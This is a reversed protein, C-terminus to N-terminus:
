DIIFLRSFMYARSGIKENDLSLYRETFLWVLGCESAHLSTPIAAYRPKIPIM